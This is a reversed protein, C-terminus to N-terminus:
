MLTVPHQWSTQKNIHDVFFVRGSAPELMAEWGEPLLPPTVPSAPRQAVGSLPVMSNSAAPAAPAALGGGVVAMAEAPYAWMAPLATMMGGGGNYGGMMQAMHAQQMMMQPPMGMVPAHQMMMQPPM